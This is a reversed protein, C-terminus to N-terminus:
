NCGCGGGAEGTGGDAGERSGRMHQEFRAEGPQRDSVMSPRALHERQYPKVRACGGAATAAIFAIIAARRVPV